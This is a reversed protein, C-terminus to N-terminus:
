KEIMDIWAPILKPNKIQFTKQRSHEGKVLVVSSKSVNFEKSLFAILYVNAKNDVAPAPIQIKIRENFLGIVKSQRANPQIYLSLNLINKHWSIPKM